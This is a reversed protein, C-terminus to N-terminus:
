DVTPDCTTAKSVDFDCTDTVLPGHIQLSLIITVDQLTITMEGIPLHFTYTKPRWREVLSTILDWDLTVHKIRYLGYFSFQIVYLRIRPDM